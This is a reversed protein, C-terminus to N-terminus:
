IQSRYLEILEGQLDSREFAADLRDELDAVGLEEDADWDLCVECDCDEPHSAAGCVCGSWPCQGLPCLSVPAREEVSRTM